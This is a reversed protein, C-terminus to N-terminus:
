EEVEVEFPAIECFCNAGGNPTNLVVPKPRGNSDVFEKKLEEIKKDVKSAATYANEIRVFVYEGDIQRAVIVPIFVKM